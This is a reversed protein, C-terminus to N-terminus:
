LIVKWEEEIAQEVEGFSKYKAFSSGTYVHHASQHTLILKFDSHNTKFIHLYNDSQHCITENNDSM